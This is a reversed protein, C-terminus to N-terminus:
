IYIKKNIVKLGINFKKIKIIYTNYLYQCIDIYICQLPDILLSYIDYVNPLAISGIQKLIM